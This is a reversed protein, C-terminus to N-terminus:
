LTLKSGVFSRSSLSLFSAPFDFPHPDELIKSIEALLAVFIHEVQPYNCQVFPRPSLWGIAARRLASIHARM